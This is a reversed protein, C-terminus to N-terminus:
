RCPTVEWSTAAKKDRLGSRRVRLGLHLSYWLTQAVLAWAAGVIGWTVTAWVILPLGIAASALRSRALDNGRRRAKAVAGFGVSASMAVVQLALPLLLSTPVVISDGYLLVELLPEAVIILGCIAATLAAVAASIRVAVATTALRLRQALFPVILVGFATLVLGLPAFYVQGGRLIGLEGDGSVSAVVFVLAQASIAFIVSDLLLPTALSRAESRWWLCAPGVRAFRPRLAPWAVATGLVAGGAWLMLATSATGTHLVLPWAAVSAVVWGGDLLAALAPKQRRFASYRMVDQLLTIPLAVAVVLFEPRALIFGLLGVVLAGVGAVLLTLTHAASEPVRDSRERPSALLSESVLSRSCGLVILYVAFAVSFQGLTDAGGGRAVALTIAFNSLTFLVQDVTTWGILPLFRRGRWTSTSRM